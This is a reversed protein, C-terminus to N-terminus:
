LNIRLSINFRRGLGMFVSASNADFGNTSQALYSDNNQADTVFKQDLVNLVTGRLQFGIDKVYFSYGAYFDVIFYDPVEWSQRPKGNEDFAWPNQVPDLDLPNFESYHKGFYTFSGSLYISKNIQWRLSQRTQFQAADGVYLGRADFPKKGVLRGDDNYILATDKSTWKWDGLSLISEFLLNDTIRYGFEFEAGMHRANMNNINVTYRIDSNVSDTIYVRKDSPKNEWITYYTNLNFTLRPKVISYGLEVSKVKENEIELFLQNEYDFVNNFRQAKSLYGINMFVNMSENLNYNIGGKFTFGPLTKWISENTKLGESNHDYIVGNYEVPQGYPIKLTTDGIQLTKPLFFDIRKYGSLSTTLNVFTTLNGNQYKLQAFIGGWRVLADNHYGIKDGVYRKVTDSENMNGDDLYYNGGLLDHVERYHEGRYTRLDIGGSVTFNTNLKYEFTSLWGLWFHNNVANRLITSSKKTTNFGYPINMNSNYAKQINQQDTLTDVSPTPSISRGGGSGISLYLINSIYLKENVNWFDRLSFMPKHYYNNATSLPESNPYITDTDTIYARSLYGWNPNYRLGMNVPLGNKDLNDIYEETMGSELAYDRDFASMRKKYSRQGHKQPAGMASFSILHKGIEKDVRLFYFWGETWTQDVWGDGRKYSGAFTVGWGNKMRGTTVGLSTRLYGDSAVEQKLSLGRKNDIGKTTLNITGGVSPIALKSMGLGRQVQTGRLVADLGFWNSWYVWGNEMDNVPIGDLMVAVNRQNFGRINIRADGDGGGSQTAYVGPTSNLIMPIDQSALQEEIKARSVNSFAVPTERTRAFDGVVEVEDLTLTKLTFNLFINKDEVTIKKKQTVFGIYSVILEYEGPELKLIYEGNMDTVTGKGEGYLINVGLLPEGIDYDTVIGSVTQTQSFVVTVFLLTSILLITKKMM